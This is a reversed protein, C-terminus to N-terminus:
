LLFCDHRNAGKIAHVPPVLRQNADYHLPRMTGAQPGHHNGEMGM